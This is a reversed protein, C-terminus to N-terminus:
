NMDDLIDGLLGGGLQESPVGAQTARLATMYETSGDAMEIAVKYATEDLRAARGRPSHLSMFAKAADKSGEAITHTTHATVANYARWLNDGGIHPASEYDDMIKALLNKRTTKKRDSADEELEGFRTEIVKKIYAPADVSVSALKRWQTAQDELAASLAAIAEGASTMRVGHSATHRVKALLKKENLACRLTNNCVVRTASAGVVTTETGDHSGMIYLYAEIVDGPTVEISKSLKITACWTRGSKLVMATEYAAGGAAVIADFAKATATVQQAVTYKRGVAGLPTLTDDRMTFFKGPIRKKVGGIEVELPHKSVTYDGGFSAFAEKATDPAVAWETPRTEVHHWPKRGHFGMMSQGNAARAIEHAM